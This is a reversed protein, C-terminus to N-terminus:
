HAIETDNAVIDKSFMSMINLSVEASKPKLCLTCISFITDDSTKMLQNTKGIVLFIVNKIM